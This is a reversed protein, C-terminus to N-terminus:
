FETVQISPLLPNESNRRTGGDAADESDMSDQHTKTDEVVISLRSRSRISSTRSALGADAMDPTINAGDFMSIAMAFQTTELDPSLNAQFYPTEKGVPLSPRQNTVKEKQSGSYASWTSTRTRLHIQSKKRCWDQITNSLSSVRGLLLVINGDLSNILQAVDKQNSDRVSQGNIELIQDGQM